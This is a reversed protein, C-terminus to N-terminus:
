AMPALLSAATSLPTVATHTGQHQSEWYYTSVYRAFSLAQAQAFDVQATDTFRRTWDALLATPDDASLALALHSRVVTHADNAATGVRLLPDIAVWRGGQAHLINDLSLDGHTPTSTEDSALWLVVRLARELVENPLASRSRHAVEHQDRLQAAWGRAQEALRPAGAPPTATALKASLRGAIAMATGRDAMESLSPGDLWELLMANHVTDAEFLKVAGTGRFASLAAAEAEVAIVPSVLKAAARIGISTVVPIVLSTSGPRPSDVIDISWATALHQWLGPVEDLWARSAADRRLVESRFATSVTPVNGMGEDERM